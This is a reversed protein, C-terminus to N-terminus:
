GFMSLSNTTDTRRSDTLRARLGKYHADLDVHRNIGNTNSPWAELFEGAQKFNARAVVETADWNFRHDCDVAHAFM